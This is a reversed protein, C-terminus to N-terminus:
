VYGTPLQIKNSFFVSIFLDEVIVFARYISITITIAIFILVAHFIQCNDAFSILFM